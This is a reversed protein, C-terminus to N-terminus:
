QPSPLTVIRKAIRCCSLDLNQSFPSVIRGLRKNRAPRFQAVAASLGSFHRPVIQECLALAAYELLAITSGQSAIM